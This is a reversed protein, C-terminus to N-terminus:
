PFEATFIFVASAPDLSSRWGHFCRHRAFGIVGSPSVRNLRFAAAM